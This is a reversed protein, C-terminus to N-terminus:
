DAYDQSELYEAPLIRKMTEYLDVLEIWYPNAELERLKYRALMSRIMRDMRIVETQISKLRLYQPYSVRMGMFDVSGTSRKQRQTESRKAPWKFFFHHYNHYLNSNELEDKLIMKKEQNLTVDQHHPMGSTITFHFTVVFILGIVFRMNCCGRNGFVIMTNIVIHQHYGM